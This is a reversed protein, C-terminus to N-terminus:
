PAANNATGMFRICASLAESVAVRKENGLAFEDYQKLITLVRELQDRWKKVLLRKDAVVDRNHHLYRDIFFEVPFSFEKHLKVTRLDSKDFSFRRLSFVIVPPVHVFWQECAPNDPTAEQWQSAALSDHFTEYEVHLNTIHLSQDVTSTSIRGDASVREEIHSGHFIHKFSQSGANDASISPSSSSPPSPVIDGAALEPAQSAPTPSQTRVLSHDDPESLMEKGEIQMEKGENLIDKGEGSTSQEGRPQRSGMGANGGSGGVGFAQELWEILRLLMETVDQQIGVSPSANLEANLRAILDLVESPDIYKRKSGLLLAFLRRLARALRVQNSEQSDVPPTVVEQNGSAIVEDSQSPETEDMNTVGAVEIGEGTADCPDNSYDLLVQRIRPVNFLAQAIVNFWCTNGVNKLGVASVGARSREHPNEPDKQGFPAFGPIGQNAKLSEEIAKNMDQDEKNIAKDAISQAIAIQLDNSDDKTLDVVDTATQTVRAHTGAPRNACTAVALNDVNSEVYSLENLYDNLAAELWEQKKQKVGENGQTHKKVCAEARRMDIDFGLIAKMEVMIEEATLYTNEKNGSEVLPTSDCRVNQQWPNPPAQHGFAEKNSEVNGHTTSDADPDAPTEDAEMPKEAASMPAFPTVTM